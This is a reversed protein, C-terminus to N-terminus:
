VRGRNFKKIKEFEVPNRVKECLFKVWNETYPFSNFPINFRCYREDYNSPTLNSTRIKFLKWANTHHYIKFDVGTRKRVQEVVMGARLLDKDTVSIQKEKVLTILSEYKELEDEDNPDIKVYEMSIDSTNKHNGLKPFLYVKFCFRESQVIEDPLDECFKQIFEKIDPYYTSRNRNLAEHQPSAFETIQLALSLNPSLAFYSGFESILFREYNLLLAQAYGSIELDFSPLNRHEIKNRLNIFLKINAKEPTSKEKYFHLLCESLEWYHYDGDIKKPTGDENKYWFDERNRCFYAHFLATYAIIM